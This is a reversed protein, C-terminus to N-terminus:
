RVKSAWIRCYIDDAVGEFYQNGDDEIATTLILMVAALGDLM